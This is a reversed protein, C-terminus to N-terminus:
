KEHIVGLVAGDKKRIKIHADGGKAEGKGALTGSKLWVSDNILKARLPKENNIVEAGYIDILIVEAVKVAVSANRIVGEAPLYDINKIEAATQAMSTTMMFGLFLACLTHKM